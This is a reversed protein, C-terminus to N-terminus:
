AGTKQFFWIQYLALSNNQTTSELSIFRLTEADILINSLGIPSMGNKKFLESLEEETLWDEVPQNSCAGKENLLSYIEKRPSTIIVYGEPSVLRSINRVFHGQESYPVHEIVESSVIIDFTKPPQSAILVDTTGQVFTLAPFLINAQGVVPKVPELGIVDGFTSLLNTLWGRGSGIELITPKLIQKYALKQVAVRLYNSIRSWRKAEDENPHPSSWDPDQTFLQQYYANNSESDLGSSEIGYNPEEGTEIWKIIQCLRKETTHYALIKNRANTSLYKAFEPEQQIRLIHRGLQEPDDKSFLLIEKGDEFLARTRPRDSIEWSIVPRGAAMGDYVRSAYGHFFSPLNVVSSGVELGKLWLAYSQRRINRLLEVHQTLLKEQFPYGSRLIDIVQTNALDFLEPLQAEEELPQQQALLGKLSTHNLWKEREGYLAGSFLAGTHTVPLTQAGIVRKPIDLVWWLAKVTDRRNLWEADREDCALAHTMYKLRHVVETQRNKLHPAQVYVEEPYKLSEGIIALRVPALTTIYSLITDDLNNHVVEIWVQEFQKGSCIVKLHSLWSAPDSPSFEKLAPVTLFTIGNATFGEEFGLNAQYGWSRAQQWKSFELPIFLVKILEKPAQLTRISNHIVTKLKELPISRQAVEGSFQGEGMVAVKFRKGCSSCGTLFVANGGAVAALSLPERFDRTVNCHPCRSSVLWFPIEGNDDRPERDLKVEYPEVTIVHPFTDDLPWILTAIWESWARNPMSTMNYLITSNSEYFDRKDGIIGQQQCFDFLSSGPYPSIQSVYVHMDMCHKLYFDMTETITEPTEAIDGFIFNGGFGIGIDSALEIAEAIQEPRSKKSMSALVRPSASEMGYSFFYCGAEKAMVLEHHGLNANAHTQFLWEFDWGYKRRGEMIGNCFERLRKKDVAFLEDLIILINFHYTEYISAIEALIDAMPRTRYKTGQRHICFSCKFPCGRSTVLPMIRPYPRTYRYVSRAALASNAIMIEPDFPSYDPFSRTEVPPYNFVPATFIAIGDRWFGLNPISDLLHYGTALSEIMQVFVEEADGSICFDPKLLHFVFEMDHTVIGGGCVIPVEPALSRIIAISDKIFTYDTCLGGLGILQPRREELMKKIKEYLMLRASSYGPCNNPNLGIVEHGAKKLAAAVYAFGVPFDCMALFSPYESIYRHTPVVLAVRM